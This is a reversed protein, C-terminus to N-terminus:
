PGTVYGWVDAASLTRAERTTDRVIQEYDKLNPPGVLDVPGTARALGLSGDPSVSVVWRGPSLTRYVAKGHPLSTLPANSLGEWDVGAVSPDIVLGDEPATNQDFIRRIWLRGDKVVYDVYVERTPDFPTDIVSERGDLTRVRVSIKKDEVLLETVASRSIAENYTDRLSGYDKALTELRERYVHAAMDARVLRYGMFGIVGLLALGVVTQLFTHLTRVPKM